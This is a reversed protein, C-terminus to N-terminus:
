QDKEDLDEVNGMLQAIRAKLEDTKARLDDESVSEFSPELSNIQDAIDGFQEITKRNPDGGFIKVFGKLM